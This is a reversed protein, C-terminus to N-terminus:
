MGIVNLRDLRYQYLKCTMILVM